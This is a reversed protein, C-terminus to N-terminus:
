SARAERIARLRGRSRQFLSWIQGGRYALTGRVRLVELAQGPAARLLQRFARHKLLNGPTESFVRCLMRLNGPHIRMREAAALGDLAHLVERRATGSLQAWRWLPPVTGEVGNLMWRGLLAHVQGVWPRRSGVPDAWARSGVPLVKTRGELLLHHALLPSAAARADDLWPPLAALLAAQCCLHGLRGRQRGLLTDTRWAPEAEPDRLAAGNLDSADPLWREPQAHLVSAPGDFEMQAAHWFDSTTEVEPELFGIWGSFDNKLAASWRAPTCQSVPESAPAASTRDAGDHEATDDPVAIVEAGVPLAELSTALAASPLALDGARVLIRLRNARTALRFTERTTNGSNAKGVPSQAPTQGLYDRALAALATEGMDTLAETLASDGTGALTRLLSREATSLSSAATQLHALYPCDIEELGLWRAKDDLETGGPFARALRLAVRTAAEPQNAALAAFAVRRVDLADRTQERSNGFTAGQPSHRWATLVEPLNTLRHGALAMQMFLRYDPCGRKPLERYAGCALMVDRRAAITPHHLCFYGFMFDTADEAVTPHRDLGTIRDHADITHFQSGVAAIEPHADLFDIQRALREPYMLDDSDLVAILPARALTLAQNMAGGIGRNVQRHLHIRADSAARDAAIAASEDTSGDDVVILEWDQITQDQVSEMARGVFAAANFVPMLVSIRPATTGATDNM